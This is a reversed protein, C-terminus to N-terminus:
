ESNAIYDTKLGCDVRPAISTSGRTFTQHIPLWDVRSVDTSRAEYYEENVAITITRPLGRILLMGLAEERRSDQESRTIGAPELPCGTVVSVTKIRFDPVFFPYTKLPDSSSGPAYFIGAQYQDWSPEAGGGLLVPFDNKQGPQGVFQTKGRFDALVCPAITPANFTWCYNGVHLQLGVGAFEVVLATNFQQGIYLAKAFSYTEQWSKRFNTMHDCANEPFVQPADQRQKSCAAVVVPKVIEDIAAWTALRETKHPEPTVGVNLWFNAVRLSSEQIDILQKSSKEAESLQRQFGRSILVQERQSNTIEEIAHRSENEFQRTQADMEARFQKDRADRDLAAASDAAIRDARIARFEVVLLFGILFMWTVKQYGKMEPHVSMAAAALGALAVSYGPLPLRFIWYLTLLAMGFQLGSFLAQKRTFIFSLRTM